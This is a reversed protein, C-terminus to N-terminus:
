GFVVPTLDDNMEKKKLEQVGKQVGKDVVCRSGSVQVKLDDISVATFEVRSGEFFAKRCKSSTCRGTGFLWHSHM